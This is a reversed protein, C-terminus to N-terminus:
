VLVILGQEAPTFCGSTLYESVSEGFLSWRYVFVLKGNEWSLDKYVPQFTCVEVMRCLWILSDGSIGLASLIGSWPCSSSSRERGSGERMTIKRRQPGMALVLAM